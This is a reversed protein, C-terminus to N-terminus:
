GLLELENTQEGNIQKELLDSVINELDGLYRDELELGYSKGEFEVVAHAVGDQIFQMRVDAQLLGSYIRM